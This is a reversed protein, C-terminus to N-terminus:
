RPRGFPRRGKDLEVLVRYGSIKEGKHAVRVVWKMRGQKIVRTINPSSYWVHIEEESHLRRWDGTVEEMKSRSIKRLTRNEFMRLKQEEKVTLCWTEDLVVPL